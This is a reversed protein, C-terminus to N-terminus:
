RTIEYATKQKFFFLRHRWVGANVLESHPSSAHRLLDPVDEAVHLDAFTLGPLEQQAYGYKRMAAQNMALIHLTEADYMWLPYPNKEFLVRYTEDSRRLVDEFAKGETM